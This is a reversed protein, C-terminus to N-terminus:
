AEPQEEPQPEKPAEEKPPEANKQTEEKKEEAEKKAKEMERMGSGKALIQIALAEQAANTHFEGKDGASKCFDTVGKKLYPLLLGVTLKKMGTNKNALQVVKSFLGSKKYLEVIQEANLMKGKGDDHESNVAEADGQPQEGEEPPQAGDDGEEPPPTDDGEEPPTDSEGGEDGDEPPPADEDDDEVPADEEGEFIIAKGAIVAELLENDIPELGSYYFM